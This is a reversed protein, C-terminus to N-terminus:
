IQLSSVLLNSFIIGLDSHPALSLNTSPTSDVVVVTQWTSNVAASLADVPREFSPTISKSKSREKAVIEEIVLMIDTPTDVPKLERIVTQSPYRESESQETPILLQRPQKRSTSPSGINSYMLINDINDRLQLACSSASDLM